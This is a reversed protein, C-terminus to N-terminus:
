LQRRDRCATALPVSIRRAADAFAPAIAEKPM